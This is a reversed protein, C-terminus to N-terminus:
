ETQRSNHIDPWSDDGDDNTDHDDDNNKSNCNDDRKTAIKM